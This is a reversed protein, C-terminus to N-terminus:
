QNNDNNSNFNRNNNNNINNNYYENISFNIKNKLLYNYVNLLDKIRNQINELKIQYDLKNKNNRYNRSNKNNIRETNIYNNKFQYLQPNDKTNSEFKNLRQLGTNIGTFVKYINKKNNTLPSTNIISNYILNNQNKISSIDEYFNNLRDNYNFFESNKDEKKNSNKNSNNNSKNNSPRNFINGGSSYKYNNTNKQNKLYNKVELNNTSRFNNNNNSNLNQSYYLPVSNGNKSLFANYKPNKGDLTHSNSDYFYNSNFNNKKNSTLEKSKNRNRIINQDNETEIIFKKKLLDNKKNISKSKKNSDKLIDNGKIDKIDNIEFIDNNNNNNINNDLNVNIPNTKFSGSYTQYGKNNNDIIFNNNNIGININNFNIGNVNHINKNNYNNSIYENKKNKEYKGVNYDNENNYINNYNNKASKNRIKNININNNINNNKM